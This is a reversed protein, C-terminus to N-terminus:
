MEEIELVCRPRDKDIGGFKYIVEKIQEFSDDELVKAKVLADCTFKDIISCPNSVDLRRKTKAYYTYVLRVPKEYMPYSIRDVLNESYIKKANALVRYHANRYNNLNLIFKKNKSYYVDLPLEIMM